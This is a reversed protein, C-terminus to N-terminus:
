QHRLREMTMGSRTTRLAGSIVCPQPPIDAPPEQKPRGGAKHRDWGVLIWSIVYYIVVGLLVVEGLLLPSDEGRLLDLDAALPALM